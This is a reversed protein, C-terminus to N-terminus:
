ETEERGHSEEKMDPVLIVPEIDFEVKDEEEEEYTKGIANSVTRCTIESLLVVVVVLGGMLLIRVARGFRRRHIWRVLMDACFFAIVCWLARLLWVIGDTGM